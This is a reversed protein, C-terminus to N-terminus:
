CGGRLFQRFIRHFKTQANLFNVTFGSGPLWFPRIRNQSPKILNKKLGALSSMNENFHEEKFGSVAIKSCQGSFFKMRQFFLVGLQGFTLQKPISVQSTAFVRLRGHNFFFILVFDINGSVVNLVLHLSTSMNCGRRKHCVYKFM